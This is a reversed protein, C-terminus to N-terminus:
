ADGEKKEETKEETKEEASSLKKMEALSMDMIEPCPMVVDKGELKALIADSLRMYAQVDMATVWEVYEKCEDTLLGLKDLEEKHWGHMELMAAFIKHWSTCSKLKIAAADEDGGGAGGWFNSEGVSNVWPIATTQLPERGVKKACIGVCMLWDIDFSGKYDRCMAVTAKATEPTIAKHGCNTDIVKELPPLLNMRLKHRLSLHVMSATPMGAAIGGGEEATMLKGCNVACPQGFRASVSCDVNGNIIADFNLGCLDLDTSLDSDTYVIIHKKDPFKAGEDSAVQLGLLIAGGKQSAKVLLDDEKWDESKLKENNLFPCKGEKLYEKLRIVNVNDYGEAKAIEEMLQSSTKLQENTKKDFGDCGDDVGLLTFSSDKKNEFLWSLQQHKVRVFNEGNPDTEGAKKEGKPLIRNFEKYLAFVCTCHIAPLTEFLKKSIANKLAIHFRTSYKFSDTMKESVIKEIARLDDMDREYLVNAMGMYEDLEAQITLDHGLTMKSAIEVIEEVKAKANDKVQTTVEEVSAGAGM